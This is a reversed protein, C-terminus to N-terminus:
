CHMNLPKLSECPFTMKSNSFDRVNAKVSELEDRTVSKNDRPRGIDENGELYSGLQRKIKM